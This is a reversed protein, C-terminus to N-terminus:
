RAVRREGTESRAARRQRRAKSRTLLAALAALGSVAVGAVMIARVPLIRTRRTANGEQYEVAVPWAYVWAGGPWWITLRRAIPTVQAEPTSMPEGRLAELRINFPRADTLPPSPRNM